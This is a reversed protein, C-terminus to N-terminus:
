GKGRRPERIAAAELAARPSWPGHIARSPPAATGSGAWQDYAAVPLVWDRGEKRGGIRRFNDRCWRATKGPPHPGNKNSTYASGAGTGIDFLRRAHELFVFFSETARRVRPDDINM